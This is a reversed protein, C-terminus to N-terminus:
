TCRPCTWRHPAAIWGAIWGSGLMWPTGFWHPVRLALGARCSDFLCPVILPLCVRRQTLVLWRFAYASPVQPVCWGTFGFRGLENYGRGCVSFVGPETESSGTIWM